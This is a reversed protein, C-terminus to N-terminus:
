LNLHEFLKTLIKELCSKSCVELLLSMLNLCCNMLGADGYLQGIGAFVSM